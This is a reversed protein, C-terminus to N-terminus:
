EFLRLVAWGRERAHAALRDDPNTAVPDTVRSMLPLDNSSDSYCWSREFSSWDHGLSRLWADTRAVKGERYTPTGVPRGTFRGDVCELKTAILHEIGFAKAIPATVFDNTATVLACLDGADAHRAVLGLASPRIAPRIVEDMFQRHWQALQECSHAGLPGVQFALYERIDLTGEQYQRYFRDNESRHFEADVIGLKVAFRGWEYDSDLPLLTHDLDFLALRM